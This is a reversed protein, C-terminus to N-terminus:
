ALAEEMGTRLLAAFRSGADAALAARAGHEVVRGEELIVIRDCREVTALRHAIVVGTRGRLLTGIAEEIHRETAPDLRSSAEDLVVLGPDRLFVRALALLQAEGASLGGPTMEAGLGRSRLWAGLGIRGLVSAVQQDDTARDFFAVNDRVSAHFLQVDQSVLTAHSRVEELTADRLDVGGLRIAGDTPDYFRLLLRALTTKGSGTRGLVGLVEGPELRLTVDRLVPEGPEYAFSVGAIEVALAGKGIARDGEGLASRTALLEDIRAVAAVAQQMQELERRFQDIPRRLMDTYHFLLYVTGLTIAGLSWLYAGIGFAIASGLAFTMISSDWIVTGALFARRRAALWARHHLALGNMVHREAGSSRIDETGGLREGIFGYMQAQVEREQRWWRVAVNGLPGAMVFLGIAAFAALAAGARLDEHAVVLLVGVLLLANGFVNVVFRSFFVALATVDGDIREILEGPTRGKHFSMDLRLVHHLLDARLANTASWGLDEGVYQAWTTLVQTALAIGVFALAVLALREVAFGAIAGDIFSRLLQPGVLQLAISALLLAALLAARPWRPGVYRRFLHAYRM